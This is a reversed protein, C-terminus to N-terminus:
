EKEKRCREWKMGPMPVPPEQTVLWLVRVYSALMQQFRTFLHSAAM